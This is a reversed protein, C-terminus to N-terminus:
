YVRRSLSLRVVEGEQNREENVQFGRYKPNRAIERRAASVAYPRALLQTIGREASATIEAVSGRAERCAARIKPHTCNGAVGWFDGVIEYAGEASRRLGLSYKGLPIKAEVAVKSGYYDTVTLREGRELPLGLGEMAEGLVDLDSIATKVATIHSM